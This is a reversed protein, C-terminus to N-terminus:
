LLDAESCSKLSSSSGSSLARLCLSCSTADNPGQMNAARHLQVKMKNGNVALAKTYPAETCWLGCSPYGMGPLLRWRSDVELTYWPPLFVFGRRWVDWWQNSCWPTATHSELKREDQTGDPLSECHSLLLVFAQHLFYLFTLHSFTAQHKHQCIFSELWFALRKGVVTTHVTNSCYALIYRFSQPGNWGGTYQRIAVSFSAFPIRPFSMLPLNWVNITHLGHTGHTCQTTESTNVAVVARHCWLICFWNISDCM